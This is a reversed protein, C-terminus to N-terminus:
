VSQYFHKCAPKDLLYLREKQITFPLIHWLLTIERRGGESQRRRGMEWLLLYRPVQAPDLGAQQDLELCMHRGQAEPLGTGSFLWSSQFDSRDKEWSELGLSYFWNCLELYPMGETHQAYAEASLAKGSWLSQGFDVGRDLPCSHIAM